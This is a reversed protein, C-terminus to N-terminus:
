RAHGLVLREAGENTGPEWHRLKPQPKLEGDHSCTSREAGQNARPEWHRQKPQSQLEGDHGRSSREAGRSSRPEWHRQKPQLQLKSDDSAEDGGHALLHAPEQRRSDPRFRITRQEAPVAVGAEDWLQLFRPEAIQGLSREIGKGMPNHVFRVGRLTFDKPRHSHGFVHVHACGKRSLSRVQAGLTESGAVSAFLAAKRARGHSVWDANFAATEPEHWDPLCRTSPLFHSLSLISRVRRGHVDVAAMERRAAEIMPENLAAFHAAIAADRVHANAKETAIHEPWQCRVYDGWLRLPLYPGHGRVHTPLSLSRDYWSFLPVIEVDGVRSPATEVGIRECLALVDAFKALSDGGPAVWVDHNGPVFFVRAFREVLLSLTQELVDLDHSIDGAVVVCASKSNAPWMHPWRLWAMNESRDSHLDSIAYIARVRAQAIPSPTSSLGALKAAGVSCLLLLVSM